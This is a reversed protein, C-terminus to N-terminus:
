TKAVKKDANKDSSSPKPLNFRRRRRRRIILNAKSIAVLNNFADRMKKAAGGGKYNEWLEALVLDFLKTGSRRKLGSVFWRAVIRIRKQRPLIGPIFFTKRRKTVKRLSFYTRLSLMVKLIPNVWSKSQSFLGQAASRCVADLVLDLNRFARQRGGRKTLLHLIRRLFKYVLIDTMAKSPISFDLKKHMLLQHVFNAFNKQSYLYNRNFLSEKLKNKNILYFGSKSVGFWFKDRTQILARDLKILYFYSFVLMKSSSEFFFRPLFNFLFNERFVIRLQNLRVGNILKKNHNIKKILSYGNLLIRNTTHKIRNEVIVYNLYTQNNLSNGLSSIPLILYDVNAWFNKLISRPYLGLTEDVNTWMIRCYRKKSGASKVFNRDHPRRIRGYIPHFLPRENLEESFFSRSGRRLLMPYFCCVSRGFFQEDSYSNILKKYFYYSDFSADVPDFRFVVKNKFNKLKKLLYNGLRIKRFRRRIKKLDFFFFSFRVNKFFFEWNSELFFDLRILFRGSATKLSYLIKPRTEVCRELRKLFDERKLM